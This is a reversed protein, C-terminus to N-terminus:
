EINFYKKVYSIYKAIQFELFDKLKPDFKTNM